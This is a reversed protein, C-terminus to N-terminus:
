EPGALDTLGSVVSSASGVAELLAIAAAAREALSVSPRLGSQRIHVGDRTAAAPAPPSSMTLGQKSTSSSTSSGSMGRHCQTGVVAQSSALDNATMSVHKTASSSCAETAPTATSAYAATAVAADASPMDAQQGQLAAAAATEPFGVEGSTCTSSAVAAPAAAEPVTSTETAFGSNSPRPRRSLM